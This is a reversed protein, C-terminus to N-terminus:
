RYVTVFGLYGCSTLPLPSSPGEYRESSVVTSNLLIGVVAPAVADGPTSPLGLRPQLVKRGM